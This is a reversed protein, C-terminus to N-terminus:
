GGAFPPLVDVLAGDSLPMTTDSAAQENVLFQCKNLVRALEANRDSLANILDSLTTGPTVARVEEDAGAARSAAAFYRITITM